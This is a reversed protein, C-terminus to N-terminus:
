LLYLRPGDATDEVRYGKAAIQERLSDAQAYDKTSRAKERDAVLAAVADPWQKRVVPLETQELIGLVGDMEKLLDLCALADAQNLGKNQLKGMDRCFAFLSPWFLQLGLDNELAQTFAKRLELLHEAVPASVEQSSAGSTNRAPKTDGSYEGGLEVALHQVRARNKRWMDLNNESWTLQRKYATSLLFMRLSKRDAANVDQLDLTQAFNEDAESEGVVSGCAMWARPEVSRGMNWIGRFNELHPFTHSEGALFVSLEPLRDLAVAALQLFWSPRVNGWETQLCDGSKLDQLSARKLLTFDQPHEKVYDALDVTKGLSLNELDMSSIQGYDKFRLVDFYVSRMKEYAAGRALLAKTLGLITEVSQSAPCFAVRESIGLAEARNKLAALVQKLHEQPSLGAKRAAELARDDMDALGVAVACSRGQKEMFGALVDLLVIRRWSDPDDLSDLPPGMTYLGAGKAGPELVIPRSDALNYLELGQKAKPAFLTTSLYREGGDPLIAVVMGQDLEESLRVAAAMAAGSSMGVFLGEERALQRVTEFALEDEVHVVRDLVKKNYIGPPYSEKMNKLGQIRHGAYPEVAIIQVDPNCEKLRKTVGMATGTTGLSMVVHTVKGETQEWIERGTHNYHAEISSENNYQDLLLYKEPEERAMRYAKEIAGDTAYKAPTLMIDAGYAQVIRRREESATEPMLLMLKYGKVACVMALGIGTNGSTAEIVIKNKDLVGSREADEIMALAVRDKISGGPNCSEVKALLDVRPNPNLRNIRVLPTNGMSDLVTNRIM